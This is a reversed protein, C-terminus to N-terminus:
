ISIVAHKALAYSKLARTTFDKVALAHYFDYLRALWPTIQKHWVYLCKGFKNQPCLFYKKEIPKM